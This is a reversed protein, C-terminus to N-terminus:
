GKDNRRVVLYAENWPIEFAKCRAAKLCGEFLRNDSLSKEAIDVEIRPNGGSVHLSPAYHMACPKHCLVYPSPSSQIMRFKVLSRAEGGGGRTEARRGRGEAESWQGRDTM